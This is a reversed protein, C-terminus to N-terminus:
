GWASSTRIRDNSPLSKISSPAALDLNEAALSTALYQGGEYGCRLGTAGDALCPPLDGNLHPDVLRNLQRDALVGIEALAIALYDCAMAVYQGHFNGGHFSEEPTEMVLPNDSCANVEEEVIRTCFALTDVVPGLIQPVCRLSYASQLYQHSDVVEDASMKGSVAAMVDGHDRALASGELLRRMAAAVAVQGDHNKLAHGRHDFARTTGRLCQVTCASLLLAAKTLTAAGVLGLCATGTMASTGNILALAEKFGPEIPTM